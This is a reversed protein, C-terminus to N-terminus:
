QNPSITAQNADVKSVRAHAETAPAMNADTPPTDFCFLDPLKTLLCRENRLFVLMCCSLKPFCSILGIVGCNLKKNRSRHSLPYHLKFRSFWGFALIYWLESLSPFAILTNLRRYNFNTFPQTSCPDTPTTLREYVWSALLRFPQIDASFMGRSPICDGAAVDAATLLRSCHLYVTKGRYATVESFYPTSIKKGIM